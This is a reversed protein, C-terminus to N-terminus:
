RVRAKPGFEDLSGQYRHIKKDIENVAIQNHAYEERMAGLDELAKKMMQGADAMRARMKFPDPDDGYHDKIAKEFLALGEEGIDIAREWREDQEHLPRLDMKEAIIERGGTHSRVPQQEEEKAFLGKWDELSKDYGNQYIYIGAGGAALGIVLFFLNGFFGSKRRQKKRKRTRTVKVEAM